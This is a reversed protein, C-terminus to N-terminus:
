EAIIVKATRFRNGERLRLYYMGPAVEEVKFLLSNTGASLTKFREMKVVQGHVNVLNLEIAAGEDAEVDVNIERIAPNPYVALDSGSSYVEEEVVRASALAAPALRFFAQNPIVNKSSGGGAYLVVIRATGLREFFTVTFAHKGKKLGIKGSAEQETHLGDNNVVQTSGIFLKSGEDSRTFFSYLGDVPIDIYGTWKFAYDDDRRKPWLNVNVIPGTKLPTLSNFDPLASWTGEYYAYDLGNVTNAPNEPNRLTVPVYAATYTVDNLPTVITHTTSAGHLWRDFAYTQGNLTQLPVVGLTRHIREVGVTSYPTTVPQGDLTVQLGAPQTALTITSKHPLVDRYVTDKLGQADTVVLYLRYFVNASTEGTNPITFTGSKVGSAVPPGDHVHTDHHFNVFWTFASAPLTGNGPDTADGSFSIVDGGRYLAGAAPTIITAEPPANFPTVTLQAANSPASGASNSVIVRYAGADSVQTSSITYSSTTAGTIAVNNKQWQYSLPATGTATVWFTAPQGESVTANSPHTVISPATNVTYIIKFLSSTSRELYYLNGDTGVDIGLADGGLNTAFPLRTVPSTSLDLMNIWRNCFDQFFYRGRYAAPYNTTTPNFFTGGTIACGNGDGSAHPYAYVPNTYAPNTSNGEASPWGFNLGGTTADNVEEWVMNGVDNVFIRGTGPQVSFTFPNRVGYAWVRRRQETGTTFPNGSPVSGNPNIRLIKGHYSDLNQANASNSNDGIAVYLLGNKFHMAGGNHIVATIPDLNLVVVESGPVAVDGNGTFRSIRNRSQDPVTYYLYVFQNSSFNPDLAIGILGREGATNVTLQLFPTPLLSGNKIIRITGNQQAVFIRGDPAFAMATPASLGNAVLVRSFGAPFTQASSSLSSLLSIFFFFGAISKGNMLPDFIKM